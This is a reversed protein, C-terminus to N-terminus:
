FSTPNQKIKRRMSELMSPPPPPPAAAATAQLPFFHCHFLIRAILDNAQAHPTAHTKEYNYSAPAHNSQNPNANQERSARAPAPLLAPLKRNTQIKLM